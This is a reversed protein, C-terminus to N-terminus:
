NSIEKFLDEIESKLYQINKGSSLCRYKKIRGDKRAQQLFKKSLGFDEIVKEEKIWQEKRANNKLTTEIRALTRLIEQEATM